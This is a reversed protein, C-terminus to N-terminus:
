LLMEEYILIVYLILYKAIVGSAVKSNEYLM